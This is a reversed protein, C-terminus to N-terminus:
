FDEDDDEELKEGVTISIPVKVLDSFEQGLDIMDDDYNEYFWTIKIDIGNRALKELKLLVEYVLKKSASNIYTYQFDGTIQDLDEGEILKDIWKLVPAYTSLANEPYSSGFIRFRKEKTNLIIGPTDVTREITITEM